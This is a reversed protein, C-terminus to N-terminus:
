SPIFSCLMFYFLSVFVAMLTTLSIIYVIGREKTSIENEELLEPTSIELDGEDELYITIGQAIQSVKLNNSGFPVESHMSKKTEKIDIM